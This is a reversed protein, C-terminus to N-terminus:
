ELDLSQFFGNDVGWFYVELTDVEDIHASVLNPDEFIVQVWIYKETYDVINWTFNLSHDDSMDGPKVKLELSETTLLAVPLPEETQVWEVNRTLMRGGSAEGVEEVEEIFAVRTDKLLQPLEPVKMMRDWGIQLVGCRSFQVIYPIPQNEHFEGLDMTRYAYIQLPEPGNWTLNLDLPIPRIELTFTDM